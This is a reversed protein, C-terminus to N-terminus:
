QIVNVNITKTFRHKQLDVVTITFKAPTLAIPLTTQTFSYSFSTKNRVEFGNVFNNSFYTSSTTADQLAVLCSDLGKPANISFAMNISGTYTTGEIPSSISVTLDDTTVSSKKCASSFIATLCLLLISISQIKKM